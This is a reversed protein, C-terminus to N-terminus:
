RGKHHAGAGNLHELSLGLGGIQGEEEKDGLLVTVMTQLSWRSFSECSWGLGCVPRWSTTDGVQNRGRFDLGTDLKGSLAEM